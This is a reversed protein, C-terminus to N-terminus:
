GATFAGVSPRRAPWDGPPHPSAHGAAQHSWRGAARRGAAARGQRLEAGAARRDGTPLASVSRRCSVQRLVQRLWCWRCCSPWRIAVPWCSSLRCGSPRSRACCSSAPRTALLEVLRLALPLLESVHHCGALLEVGAQHGAAQGPAPGPSAGCPLPPARKIDTRNRKDWTGWTALRGFTCAVRDRIVRM